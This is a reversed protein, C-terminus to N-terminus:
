KYEKKRGFLQFKLTRVKKEVWLRMTKGLSSNIGEQKPVLEPNLTVWETVKQIKLFM